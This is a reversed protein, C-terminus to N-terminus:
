FLYQLLNKLFIRGYVNIVNSIYVICVPHVTAGESAISFREYNNLRIM